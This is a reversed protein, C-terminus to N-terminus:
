DVCDIIGEGDSDTDFCADDPYILVYHYEVPPCNFLLKRIWLMGWGCRAGECTGSIYKAYVRNSFQDCDDTFDRHLDQYIARLKSPGEDNTHPYYGQFIWDGSPRSSSNIIETKLENLASFSFEKSNVHPVVVFPAIAMIILVYSLSKLVFEQSHPFFGVVTISREASKDKALQDKNLM